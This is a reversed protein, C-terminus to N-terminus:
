TGTPEQGERQSNSGGRQIGEWLKELKSECMVLEMLFEGPLFLRKHYDFHGSFRLFQLNTMGEFARESINLNEEIMYLNLDIGIVSRSGAKNDDTLVEFIDKPDVLFQRQGPERISQKRVIERGLQVLMNHMMYMGQSTITILSKEALVHLGQRVDLFNNALYEELKEVREYTFLCAIYLFLDKDEDDLAEYSFKLISQIGVNLNNGLRPLANTWENESMGRFYSGMVKLGLPLAGSFRTVIWSLEAFGDKPSNQGFAYMCFIKLAEDSPPIDVKYIHNIGHAELVRLDDTTIIIRSGSGFWRTEKALADLQVSLDVGDLVAFNKKDNLREQVVRLHSVEIDKQKIIQSMFQQQLHLKVSYDDSCPRKYMAKINNMFVSLQFSESHQNFLVRAITTKGIGPPGWIGIMRVENLDLRLLPEMKELHTRMGVLEEFDNSAMSKNLENSIDMAIKEIMEAEYDWNSSHYGAITAEGALAQKWRKIDEKRQGKCTKKFVKGFYGTQKKVDTPDVEYFITMVIQGVAERFKMIEVLENMCWTSSTYSKSLIVIGIRSGRIAEILKPGISKSREIDNDIFPDIGKSRFEKLIHSLFTKRVDEGHFSPFVHHIWNPPLSSPPSPSISSSHLLIRNNQRFRFKSYSYVKISIIGLLTFFVVLAVCTWLFLPSDMPLISLPDFMAISKLCWDKM